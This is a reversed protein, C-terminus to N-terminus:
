NTKKKTDSGNRQLESLVTWVNDLNDKLAKDNDEIYKQQAAHKTNIRGNVYETRDKMTQHELVQTEKVQVFQFYIGAIVFTAVAVKTNAWWMDKMSFKAENM